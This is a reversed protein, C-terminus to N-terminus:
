RAPAINCTTKEIPDQIAFPLTPARFPRSVVGVTAPNAIPMDILITVAVRWRMGESMSNNTKEMAPRVEAKTSIPLLNASRPM